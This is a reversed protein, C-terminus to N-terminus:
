TLENLNGVSVVLLHGPDFVRLKIHLENLNGVRIVLIRCPNFM